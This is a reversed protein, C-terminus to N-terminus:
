SLYAQSAPSPTAPRVTTTLPQPASRVRRLADYDEHVVIKRVIASAGEAINNVHKIPLIEHGHFDVSDFDYSLREVCFRWQEEEFREKFTAGGELRPFASFAERGFPLKNDHLDHKSVFDPIYQQQGINALIAFVRPCHRVVSDYHPNGSHQTAADVLGKVRRVDGDRTGSFYKVVDTKAIFTCQQHTGDPKFRVGMREQQGLWNLFEQVPNPPRYGQTAEPPPM